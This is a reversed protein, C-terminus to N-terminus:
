RSVCVRVARVVSGTPLGPPPRRHPGQAHQEKDSLSKAPVLVVATASREGWQRQGADAAIKERRYTVLGGSMIGVKPVRLLM